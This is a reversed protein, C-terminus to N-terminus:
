CRVSGTELLACSHTSGASLQRVTGGLDVLEGVSGPTEDDGVCCTDTCPIPPAECLGKGFGAAGNGNEGWCRVTGGSILACSHGEGTAVSLITSRTCDAECGDAAVSNGDDCQEDAELLANGCRAPAEGSGESGNVTGGADNLATGGAGSASDGDAKWYLGSRAGCAALLFGAVAVVSGVWGGPLCRVM